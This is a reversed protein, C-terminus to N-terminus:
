KDWFKDPTDYMEDLLATLYASHRVDGKFILLTVNESKVGSLNFTCHGYQSEGIKIDEIMKTALNTVNQEDYYHENMKDIKDDQNSRLLEVENELEKYYAWKLVESMPFYKGSIGTELHMFEEETSRVCKFLNGGIRVILLPVNKDPKEDYLNKWNM